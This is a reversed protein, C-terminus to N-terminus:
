GFDSRDQRVLALCVPTLQMLQMLQMLLM